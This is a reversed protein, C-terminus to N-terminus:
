GQLSQYVHNAAILDSLATGVSKFLTIDMENVRAYNNEQALQDLEACVDQESFVGEKIPILLEGAEALVNARSDVYVQSRSITVSDCERADCNHNGILDVHTGERLWNGDFLPASAGTACSIIDASYITAENSQGIVFEVDEFINQLRAQLATVKQLNRAILTVRKISRVTLHARIMYEALNGSGYFVLHGSDERSLYRSALASVAATRWLTIRTGDVLALPEGHQRSFLMIKSYLSEYGSQANNPFYTFAKVGIVQENWAPLVAFADHNDNSEDLPYVNRKPMSFDHAFGTQMASLLTEFNLANDIQTKDIIQM